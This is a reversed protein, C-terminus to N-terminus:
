YGGGGGMSGGGGGGSCAAASALYFNGCNQANPGSQQSSCSLFLLSAAQCASKDKSKTNNCFVLLFLLGLATLKM